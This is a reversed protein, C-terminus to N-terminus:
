FVGFFMGREDRPSLKPVHIRVKAVNTGCNTDVYNLALSDLSGFERVISGSVGGRDREALDWRLHPWTAPNQQNRWTPGITGTTPKHNIDLMKGLVWM